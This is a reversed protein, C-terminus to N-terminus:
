GQLYEPGEGQLASIGDPTEHVDLNNVVDKVGEVKRVKKILHNVEHTLIPGSLTVIGNDASVDIAKSHTVDRGFKSRVRQVLKDDDVNEEGETKKVARAKFGETRNRMDRWFRSGYRASEHQFRIAKDRVLAKRHRGSNPDFFYTLISGLFTGALFFSASGLYQNPVAKQSNRRRTNSSTKKRTNGTTKKM